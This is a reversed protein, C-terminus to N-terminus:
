FIWRYGFLVAVAIHIFMIIIMIYAFPKHIVHWYHLMPQVTSLFAKKRLLLSKQKIVVILNHIEKKPLKIKNRYIEKKLARIRFPRSLDSLLIAAIAQFGTQREGFSGGFITQIKNIFDADLHYKEKLLRNMLNNKEEIERITLEDGSLKRPIQVYLYRGVVGSLMVAMMSYYSVAVIGGIKFSTHLNIFVPGMIGFFIHINLWYRIKGFRLGCFQRKRASYLFLLLIMASGLIGLGHGWIGGPKLTKHLPSRPRLELPLHYYEYGKIIVAFAFLISVAYLLFLITKHIKM